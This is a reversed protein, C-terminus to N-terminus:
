RKTEKLWDMYRRDATRILTKYFRATSSGAKDGGALLIARRGPDFAFAIRWVGDAAAFRLEKMNAFRSGNLTDCHPRMLQPGLEGLVQIMAALGIRAESPFAEAEGLFEEHLLVIWKASGMM